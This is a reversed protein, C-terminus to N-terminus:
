DKFLTTLGDALLVRWSYYDHGSAVSKFTVPYGKEKLTTFLKQNTQYISANVPETEFVGANLYIQINKKTSSEVLESMWSHEQNAQDKANRPKWWFSGSQSLVKGFREPHQLAIFMAALGGFSSGSIVTNEASPCISRERCLWPMLEDALMNAFAKNPTLEKARFSPRIPNVFLVRMPPIAKSAILNDMVIPTPVKDLYAEGDFLVLLPSAKNLSYSGSPEYLRLKRADGGATERYSIDTVQGKPNDQETTVSDSSARNLTLTSASGFVGTDAGFTPLLNLPDPAATALVAKRQERNVDQKLQPVNPAIRYSLRASDPVEFSHFWIDSGQIHSLQAHGGYPAGLLRVNNVDGRFLFTIIAKDNPQYEVLPAGQSEIIQWFKKEADKVGGEIDAAAQSLTPSLMPLKPSVYQDKKLPVPNLQMEIKSLQQEAVDVEIKYTDAQDVYWFIETERSSHNLLKKIPDGSSNFAIVQEIYGESRIYGRYYGPEDVKLFTSNQTNLEIHQPTNAKVIMAQVGTIQTFLATVLLIWKM